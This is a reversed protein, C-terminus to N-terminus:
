HNQLLNETSFTLTESHLAKYHIALHMNHKCQALM